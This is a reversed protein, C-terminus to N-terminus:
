EKAIEICANIISERIKAARMYNVSSNSKNTIRDSAIGVIYQYTNEVNPDREDPERFYAVIPGGGMGKDAYSYLDSYSNENCSITEVNNVSYSCLGNVILCGILLKM